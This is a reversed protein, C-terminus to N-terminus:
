AEHSNHSPHPATRRPWELDHEPLATQEGPNDAHRRALEALIQWYTAQSLSPDDRTPDAGGLLERELKRISAGGPEREGLEWKNVISRSVGLRRALEEQSLRRDHRRRRIEAPTWEM